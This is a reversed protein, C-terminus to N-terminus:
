YLFGCIGSGGCVMHVNIFMTWAYYWSRGIGGLALIDDSIEDAM